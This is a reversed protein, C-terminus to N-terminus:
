VPLFSHLEKGGKAKEVEVKVCSAVIIVFPARVCTVKNVGGLNINEIKNIKEFTLQVCSNV